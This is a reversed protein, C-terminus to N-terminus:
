FILGFRITISNRDVSGLEMNVRFIKSESYDVGLLYGLTSKQKATTSTSSGPPTRKDSRTSFRLGTYFRLEPEQAQILDVSGVFLKADFESWQDRLTVVVGNKEFKSVEGKSFQAAIGTFYGPGFTMTSRIGGGIHPRTQGLEDMKQFTMKGLGALFYIDLQDLLGYALHLSQRAVRLRESGQGLKMDRTSLESEMSIGFAGKGILLPESFVCESSAFFLSVAMVMALLRKKM